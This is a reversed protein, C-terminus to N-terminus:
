SAQYDQKSAYALGLLGYSYADAGGLEIMKTFSEIAADFNENRAYLMGLSKWARRFAPFKGVATRYCQLAGDLREQQFLIGGLDFDLIASCDPKMAKRLTEAAKPLDSAMLPRVKDLIKVEDPTVRPEIESNVGYGAIFQKKFTPDKWIAELDSKDQAKSLDGVGVAVCALIILTRM